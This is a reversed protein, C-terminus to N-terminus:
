EQAHSQEQGQKDLYKEWVKVVKHRHEPTSGGQAPHGPRHLGMRLSPGPKPKRPDYRPQHQYHCATCNLIRREGQWNDVRKGHAGFSWDKAEQSHCQSCLIYAEDFSLKIGEFTKLGGDGDLHHCTLCWFEGKGHLGHRLRFNDHPEKLMRPTLDSEAWDHCDLCPHMDPDKKSPIVTYPRMNAFLQYGELINGDFDPVATSGVRPKKALNALKKAQKERRSTPAEAAQDDIQMDEPWDLDLQMAGSESESSVPSVASSAAEQQRETVSKKPISDASDKQPLTEVMGQTSEMSKGGVTDDDHDTENDEPPASHSGSSPEITIEDWNWDESNASASEAAIAQQFLVEVLSYPVRLLGASGMETGGLVILIFFIYAMICRALSASSRLYCYTKYSKMRGFFERKPDAM